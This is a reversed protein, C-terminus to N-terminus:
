DEGLNQYITDLIHRFHEFDQPTLNKWAQRRIQAVQPKLDEVKEKGEKSLWVCFRRRDATDISRELLGREELLAVIRTLTPTDKFTLRALEKQSIAEHEAVAKLVAWQDVTVGFGLDKFRKQAFQKVRRATRNLLFSYTNYLEDDEFM